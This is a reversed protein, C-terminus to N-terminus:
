YLVSAAAISHCLLCGAMSGLHNVVAATAVIIVYHPIHHHLIFLSHDVAAVIRVYAM